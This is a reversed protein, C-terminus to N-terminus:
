SSAFNRLLEMGFKHSKEPHFQVGTINDKQFASTFEFGYKTSFLEDKSDQLKVYYSHVFYFRFKQESDNILEQDKSSKVYNWGMHPVKHKSDDFKFKICEANVWNLGPENGEESRSTMLQMGLCIGLTPLKDVTVKKNLIDLLGFEKLKTMGKDFAGVGPLIIKSAKEIDSPQNSILSEFGLKHLMNKISGLNGLGYDVITIM